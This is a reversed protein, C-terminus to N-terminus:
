KYIHSSTFCELSQIDIKAFEGYNCRAHIDTKLISTWAKSIEISAISGSKQIPFKTLKVSTTNNQGIIM